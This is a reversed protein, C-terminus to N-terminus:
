RKAIMRRTLPISLVLSTTPQGYQSLHDILIELHKVSSVCVKMIFAESGTLRYCELIEPMDRLLMAIRTSNQGPTSMRIFAMVPFGVKELNIEAHYGLLIGAEEMRHIREAVSSSSLGVRQGLEKFSLRASEQLLYLLQWGVDDLLKESDETM